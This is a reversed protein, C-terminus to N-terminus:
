QGGTEETEFDSTEEKPIHPKGHDVPEDRVIVQLALPQGDRLIQLAQRSGIAAREVLAELRGARVVPLGAFQTIVDGVRLEAAAAPSDPRVDTVLLGRTDPTNLKRALEPTVEQVSVGLYGRRISGRRVLQSSAWKALNVPVAFGIGQYGGSTTQIAANIGIVEGRINVLPGGSNGPNIAADTQIYDDGLKGGLGRGKASIIGATVTSGLGFPNGIALVWDGVQVRDSDGLMAASLPGAGDIRILAVDTRPDTKVDGAKFLRGDQLEITIQAKGRVVHESTLILGSPDIVLGSALSESPEAERAELGRFFRRLEEPLGSGDAHPRKKSPLPVSIRHVAVVSPMVSKAAYEFAM